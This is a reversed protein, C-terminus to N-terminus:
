GGNHDWKLRNEYRSLVQANAFSNTGGASKPVIHDIQWELPSPTVGKMSKLPQILEIGSLDSRVVGGNVKKNQQIIQAKQTATFDKGPGVDPPDVLNAYPASARSTAGCSWTMNPNYSSNRWWSDYARVNQMAYYSSSVGAVSGGGGGGGFMGPTMFARNVNMPDDLVCIGFYGLHDVNKVPDNECYAFMNNGLLGGTSVLGDANIFRGVEPNYYRSQLYYLGTERDYVYGRYRLPNRKGLSNAMPGTTDLLDGWADYTYEAATNGYSDVLAVVDGQLNTVYYYTSGAYSVSLPAGDPSYTFRLVWGIVNGNADKETLRLYDLQGGNYVYRYTGGDNNTRFTRMGDANYTYNWTTTGDSMAALERGHKWTYAWTGDSTLNGIEDYTFTKGDYGTLKDGWNSDGYTYEIVDYPTGLEGTTYPYKSRSTINGANDYTWTHTYNEEQNNERILQNASDYVYSTTYRGDSVSAINGNSDYTYTWLICYVYSSHELQTVQNSTGNYTYITAFFDDDEQVTADRQHALITQSVRGLPDYVYRRTSRDEHFRTLRDDGDYSMAAWRDLGNNNANTNESTAAIQGKSNYSYYLSYSYNNPGTEDYRQLRGAYDYTYSTTIGTESDFTHALAGSDTYTFTVYAGDEYTQRTARGHSDYTYTIKDGNGYVLESLYRNQDNTYAYTALTYSGAKVTERLGFDGYTFSYTTSGTTIQSLYDNEYQYGASLSLGTNTAATVGTPRFVSDYAYNTRTAETDGPNQVWDLVNTDPDYGYATTRGLADTSSLLRNGNDAYVFTSTSSTSGSQVTVATNNGYTDYTYTTVTNKDDTIQIVNNYVDYVYTMKCVGDLSVEKINDTGPYYTYKTVRGTADTVTNLNGDDYYTASSGSEEKYLQIGDFCVTNALYDCALEVTMQKYAKKAHIQVASYQWTSVDPNFRAVFTEKTNDSYTLTCRLGYERTGNARFDYDTLPVCNGKAWGCLTFFDGASGAVQITQKASKAYYTSGTISYAHSDMQAAPSSLINAVGDGTACNVQEWGYDTDASYRFDGNNILNYRSATQAQELQVCDVYFGTDGTDSLVYFQVDRTEETSNTYSVQLRKWAYNMIIATTKVEEDGSKAMLYVSDDGDPYARVHCSFTLTQGPAVSYPISQIGRPTAGSVQTGFDVDLAYKDLHSYTTSSYLSVSSGYASWQTRNYLDNNVLLNVASYQLDSSVRLQHKSKSPDNNNTAETDTNLAYASFVAKGEDDTICVTNGFDNFQLVQYRNEHDTVTTQNHLYSFTLTGGQASDDTESVRLVRYPQYSEEPVTFTYSLKYGDVDQVAQLLNGAYTYLSSKEDADTVSTLKGDTYTFTVATIEDTGTGTYSIKDLLNETNYSFIYKREAGDTVTEIFGSSNYAVTIHSKTAQNNSIRVLRGNSDFGSSSGDAETIVYLESSNTNVTLVRDRNDEDRYVGNQLTFYHDTGDADEWIYYATTSDLVWRTVRQHLNTRWGIGVGFSNASDNSNNGDSPTIADNLNYVHSIEVPMRTGGFGMDQRVWVLNGTFYNVYGTGARGASASAYDWYSELGNNNRFYITLTPRQEPTSHDSSSFRKYFGNRANEYDDSIKFMMGTNEDAYWGQVIDTVNWNYFTDDGVNAYDEINTDFDPKNSWNITEVDWQGLVKHVSMPVVNGPHNKYLEINASVIVDSSTLQPLNVYKLFIRCVGWEEYHGAFMNQKDTYLEASDCVTQDDINEKSTTAQVMPDLIVPWQRADEALWAQPLLYTLTYTGNSGTLEVKIDYCSTGEGDVLFPAPMHMVVAECKEDYLTISGDQNLVPIMAGTNLTYRYGRLTSSYQALVVSEKVENGQLDYIIDTNEYVDTYQLRSHQKELVTEPHKAAAKQATLDIRQVQAAATKASQVAFSQVPQMDMAAVQLDGSSRLEGAMFFSLTYGDKEITVANNTSLASPFSVQWVGATNTYATSGNKRVAKLTNDIEQWQGDQEFHVADPYVVAMHLGNTLMFEKSYATRKDVVEETVQPSQSLTLGDQSDLSQATEALDAALGERYEQAFISLPLMNVLLVATLLLSIGRLFKNLM